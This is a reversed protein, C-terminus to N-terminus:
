EWDIGLINLCREIAIAEARYIDANHGNNKMAKEFSKEAQKHEAILKTVQESTITM